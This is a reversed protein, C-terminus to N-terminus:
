EALVILQVHLEDLSLIRYRLALLTVLELDSPELAPDLLGLEKSLLLVAAQGLRTPLVVM